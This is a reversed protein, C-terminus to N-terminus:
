SCLVKWTKSIVAFFIFHGVNAFDLLVSFILEYVVLFLSHPKAYCEGLQHSASWSSVFATFTRSDTVRGFVAGSFLSRHMWVTVWKSSYINWKGPFTSSAKWGGRSYSQLVQRELAGTKIRILVLGHCMEYWWWPISCLLNKSELLGTSQKWLFLCSAGQSFDWAVFLSLHLDGGVWHM